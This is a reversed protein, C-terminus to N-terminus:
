AANGRAQIEHILRDVALGADLDAALAPDLPAQLLPRGLARQLFIELQLSFEEGRLYFGVPYPRAPAVLRERQEPTLSGLWAPDADVHLEAGNARVRGHEFEVEFETHSKRRTTDCWDLRLTGPTGDAHRWQVAARDDAHVSHVRGLTVGDIAQVDGFVYRCLDILHPGYENLCGGGRQRDTRWSTTDPRTIVNGLMVAGYRRPAGLTRAQAIGRLAVFPQLFRLVFGLQAVTGHRAQLAALEASREPVLTLPKEVFCAIGREILSRAVAHHTATPSAVVAARWPRAALAADLNAYTAIGIRGFLFRALRSPDCLAVEGAALLRGLIALHSLGMKGGGVVLVSM